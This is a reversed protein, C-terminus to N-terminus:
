KTPNNWNDSRFPAVPLGEKNFLNPIDDNTFAFRVAIPNDILPTSVIVKNEKIFADALVFKHDAGAIYFNSLKKGKCILGNPAYEFEVTVKNRSIYMTKFVPSQCIINKMGYTKNLAMNALRKGVEQKNTPHINKVDNVIDSIVVMGCDPFKAIMAQQERIIYAKENNKYNYPAIQVLYFPFQKGFDKRWSEILTQLSIDYVEPAAKVNAEGQYWLAGAINYPIIPHIMGNYNVAPKVPWWTSANLKSAANRLVSDKDFCAQKMWVEVPTGGWASVIIGVPVNLKKYLERAFYYGVASTSKVTNTDCGQWNGSVNEQPTESGTKPICFIRINPYNANTIEEKANNGENVTFAMNSQGSCLWVEGLMINRFERNEKAGIVKLTYPGGAKTTKIVAKFRAMNDVTTVVTDYPSWSGVIKLKANVQYHGWIAVENNQQLVMNDGFVSPFRLQANIYGTVFLFCLVIRFFNQSLNFM